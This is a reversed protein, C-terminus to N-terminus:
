SVKIGFILMDFYQLCCCTYYNQLVPIAYAFLIYLRKVYTHLCLLSWLSLCLCQLQKKSTHSFHLCYGLCCFKCTSSCLVLYACPAAFLCFMRSCVLRFSFILCADPASSIGQKKPSLTLLMSCLPHHLFSSPLSAWKLTSKQWPLARLGSWRRQCSLVALPM